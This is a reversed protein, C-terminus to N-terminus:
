LLYCPIKEIKFIRKLLLQKTNKNDILYKMIYISNSITAITQQHIKFMHLFWLYFLM